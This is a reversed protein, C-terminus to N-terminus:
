KYSALQTELMNIELRWARRQSMVPAYESATLEGESYKIAKYDSKRLLRKLEQIRKILERKENAM